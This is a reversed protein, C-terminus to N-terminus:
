LYLIAFVTAVIIAWDPVGLFLAMDEIVGDPACFGGRPADSIDNVQLDAGHLRHSM